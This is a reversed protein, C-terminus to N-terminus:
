EPRKLVAVYPPDGEFYKGLRGNRYQWILRNAYGYLMGTYSPKKKAPLIVKKLNGKFKLSLSEGAPLYGMDIQGYKNKWHNLDNGRLDSITVEESPTGSLNYINVDSNNTIILTDGSISITLDRVARIRDLLESGPVYWGDDRSALYDIAKRFLPHVSFEGEAEPKAFHRLYCHIISAGDEEALSDIETEGLLKLMTTGAGFASSYWFNVYPKRPDHYPTSPDFRLTNTLMSDFNRVYRTKEKCIDGWFYPSSPNHGGFELPEYISVLKSLLKNSLWYKGWYINEHNKSHMVNM